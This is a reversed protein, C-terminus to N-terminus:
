LFVASKKDPSIWAPKGKVSGKTWDAGVGAPRADSPEGGVAGPNEGYLKGPTPAGVKLKMRQLAEAQKPDDTMAALTDLHQNFADAEAERMKQDYDTGKNLKSALDTSQKGLTTVIKQFAASRQGATRADKLNELHDRFDERMSEMRDSHDQMSQTRQEMVSLAKTQREDSAAINKDQRTESAAERKTEMQESYQQTTLQDRQKQLDDIRKEYLPNFKQQFESNGAYQAQIGRLRDIETNLTKIHSGWDDAESPARAPAPASAPSGVPRAAVPMMLGPGGSAPSATAPMMLGPDAARASAAMPAGQGSPNPPAGTGGSMAGGIEKQMQESAKSVNMFMGAIDSGYKKKLFSQADPTDALEPHQQYTSLLLNDHEQQKEAKAKAYGGAANMATGLLFGLMGAM